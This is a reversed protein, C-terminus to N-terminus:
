GLLSRYFEILEQAQTYSGTTWRKAVHLAGDSLTGYLDTDQWIDKLADCIGVADARDLVYADKRHSLVKGVNTRPLVVPRGIAFCEPLKSPLRLENFEGTRGPQVFIDAMALVAPITSRDVVGLHHEFPRYWREDGSESFTKGKGTRVLAAPVGERNLLAIAVYLSRIESRNAFHTNGTYVVVLMEDAIGQARRMPDNRPRPSFLSPDILPPLEIAPAQGYNLKALEPVIMTIGDAAELWRRGRGPHFLHAPVHDGLESEPLCELRNWPIRAAKSALYEENDELHIVTRAPQTCECLRSCFRRVHERPTWAHVIDPAEGNLHIRSTLAADFGVIPIEGFNVATRAAPPAPCAITCDFGLVSVVAAPVRLVRLGLQRLRLCLDEGACARTFHEDFGGISLVLGTEM